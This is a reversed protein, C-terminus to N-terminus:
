CFLSIQHFKANKDEVFCRFLVFVLAFFGGFIMLDNERRRKRNLFILIM